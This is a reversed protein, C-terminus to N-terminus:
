RGSSRYEGCVWLAQGMGEGSTANQSALFASILGIGGGVGAWVIQTTM